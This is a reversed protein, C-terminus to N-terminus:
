DCFAWEWDQWVVLHIFFKFSSAGVYNSSLIVLKLHRQLNSNIAHLSKVLEILLPDLSSSKKAGPGARPSNWKLTREFRVNM